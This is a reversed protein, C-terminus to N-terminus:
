SRHSWEQRVERVFEEPNKTELLVPTGNGAPPLLVLRKGGARYMRITKGSAVRFWGSRYHPNAFGNTRLTPQWATDVGFDVVRIHDVDVAAANLTVPYFRDHITLSEPTLTCTPPGPSYFLTLAAISLAVMGIAGALLKGTLGSAPYTGIADLLPDSPTTRPLSPRIVGIFDDVDDPSIVATKARTILVVANNRNTVYWTCKGLKSTRFLGYWGFLGGSGFLRICGSLDNMAAPRAERIESLPIRVDGILRKVILAGDLITYGRPSYGYSLFLLVAEIGAAIASGTAFVIGLFLLVVVASVIRATSDYSASFSTTGQM